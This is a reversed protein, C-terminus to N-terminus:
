WGRSQKIELLQNYKEDTLRIESLKIFKEEGEEDEYWCGSGDPMSVIVIESFGGNENYDVRHCEGDFDEYIIKAELETRIPKYVELNNEKGMLKGKRIICFGM